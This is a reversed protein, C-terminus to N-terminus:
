PRVSPRIPRLFSKEGAGDALFSEIHRYAQQVAAAIAKSQPLTAAIKQIHKRKTLMHFSPYFNLDFVWSIQLLKLDVQTKLDQLSAVKKEHFANLIKPSCDPTDPLGLVILKDNDSGNRNEFNEYHEAVVRWIDLKDADRLLKIYFLTKEEEAAPLTAANHYYIAKSILCKEDKRCHNLAKGLAIEKLGLRAHNESARDDFTRYTAYQRFRGTDHLIATAKALLIDEPALNLKKGILIINRCVHRTHAEKLRVAYSGNADDTYFGAVYAAFWKRIKEFEKKKMTIPLTQRVRV